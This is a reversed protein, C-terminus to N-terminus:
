LLFAFLAVIATLLINIEMRGASVTKAKTTAKQVYAVNTVRAYQTRDATAAYYYVNYTTSPILDTLVLSVSASSYLVNASSVTSSSSDLSARIQAPTPATTLDTSAVAFFFGAGSSLKLGSLTITSSNATVTISSSADIVPLSYTPGVALTISSYYNTLSASRLATNFATLFDSPTQDQVSTVYEDLLTSTASTFDSARDGNIYITVTQYNFSTFDDYVSAQSCSTDDM